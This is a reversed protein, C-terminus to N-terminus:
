RVAARCYAYLADYAPFQPQIQGSKGLAQEVAKWDPEAAVGIVPATRRKM